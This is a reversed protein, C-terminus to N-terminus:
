QRSLDSLKLLCVQSNNSSGGAGGAGSGGGSSGGGKDGNTVLGKFLQKLTKKTSGNCDFAKLQQSTKEKRAQSCTHDSVGSM